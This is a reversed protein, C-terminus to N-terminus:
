LWVLSLKTECGSHLIVFLNLQVKPVPRNKAQQSHYKGIIWLTKLLKTNEIKLHPFMKGTMYLWAFFSFISIM